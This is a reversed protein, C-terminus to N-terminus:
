GSVEESAGAESRGQDNHEGGKQPSSFGKLIGECYASRNEIIWLAAEHYGMRSAKKAVRLHDFMNLKGTDRVALIGKHVAETVNVSHDERIIDSFDCQACLEMPGTETGCQKCKGM